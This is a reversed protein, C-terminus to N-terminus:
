HLWEDKIQVAERVRNLTTRVEMTLWRPGPRELVMELVNAVSLLTDLVEQEDTYESSDVPYQADDM